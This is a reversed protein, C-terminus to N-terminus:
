IYPKVKYDNYFYAIFLKYAKISIKNSVIVKEINVDKLSIPTKNWYFRNKETEINGFM